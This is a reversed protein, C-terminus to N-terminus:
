DESLPQYPTGSWTVNAHGSFELVNLRIGHVVVALPGLILNLAHGLLIIMAGLILTFFNVKGNGFVMANFTDAVAVTALGVAFLRVYSVVDTFNNMLSLAVTGLGSGIAKFINKQPKSFFVVLAVGIAFLWIVFVPFSDGLILTNALFFAAWLVGIWGLDALAKLSPLKISMRWFHAISLHLAGVFFCFRQATEANNLGPLLPRFGTKALWAQGFFTGSLLGWIMACLSLLYFLFFPAQDSIKRGLKKHLWFTLIFYVLGYGADGILIGFFLSFFILFVPSIDLERYGPIIELFRFVPNILRVFRNSRILTPVNDNECPQSIVIGWQKIKARASLREVADFPIYGSVYSLTGINAMGAIAQQFKLEKEMEKGAQILAPLLDLHRRIDLNIAQMVKEEEMLRARMEALGQKPLAIERFRCEFRVLSVTACYIFGNRSFLPQVFVEAPFDKIQRAPVQYLKVYIGKEALREIEQPPFDGWREWESIQQALSRAYTELHDYRKWLDVIHRAQIKCDGPAQRPTETKKNKEAAQELVALCNKLLAAEEQLINIDRSQPPNQHEIHLLGMRRLENLAASSDKEQFIVVAKKM